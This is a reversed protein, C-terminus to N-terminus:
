PSYYKSAAVSIFGIYPIRAYKGKIQLARGVFEKYALKMGAGRLDPREEM